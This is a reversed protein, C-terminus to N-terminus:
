VGTTEDVAPGALHLLDAQLRDLSKVREGDSGRRELALLHGLTKLASALDGSRASDAMSRVYFDSAALYHGGIASVDGLTRQTKAAAAPQGTRLFKSAAQLLLREASDL